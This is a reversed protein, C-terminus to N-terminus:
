DLYHNDRLYTLSERLGQVTKTEFVISVLNKNVLNLIKTLDIEGQGMPLHNKPGLADHVHLHIVESSHDNIFPYDQNGSSHDHGIDWTLKFCPYELLVCIAKTLFDLHYIGTNEVVVKIDTGKLLKDTYLAFEKTCALYETFYQQFLYVRKDPLTFYIGPNMHMNLTPVSMQKAMNVIDSFAELYAQRIRPNPDWPNFDEALHLTYSVESEPYINKLNKLQYQPLNLNIEIFDLNLEKCLEINENHSQLEILTPMGLKIQSSQIKM